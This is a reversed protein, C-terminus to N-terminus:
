PLPGTGLIERATATHEPSVLYPHAGASRDGALAVTRPGLAAIARAPAPVPRAAADLGDLYEVVKSYPRTYTVGAQEVFVAHGAGIGLLLRDPYVDNVRHFAAAVEGPEDAWVNM